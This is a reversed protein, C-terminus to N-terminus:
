VKTKVYIDKLNLAQLCRILLNNRVESGGCVHGRQVSIGRVLVLFSKKSGSVLFLCVGYSQAKVREGNQCM